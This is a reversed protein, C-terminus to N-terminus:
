SGSGEVVPEVEDVAYCFPVAGLDDRCVYGDGQRCDKDSDCRRMCASVVDFDVCIAESPCDNPECDLVTCHGRPATTDCVQGPACETSTICSDGIEPACAGLLACAAALSVLVRHM